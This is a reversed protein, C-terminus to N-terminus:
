ITKEIVEDINNFIAKPSYVKFSEVTNYGWTVCGFDINVKQAAMADGIEDGIYITEKCSIKSQNLIKKLKSAKGSMSTGCEFYDILDIYEQGLIKHVNEYTNKTVIALTAGCSSLRKLLNDADKFISLCHIDKALLKKLHNLVIPIKWTPVGLYKFLKNVEYYRITEWESQQVKKFKYKDAVKNVAGMYWSLTDALTGDFDFIILKYKV